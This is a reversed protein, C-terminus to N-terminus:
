TATQSRASLRPIVRVSSSILAALSFASVERSVQTLMALLAAIDLSLAPVVMLTSLPLPPM